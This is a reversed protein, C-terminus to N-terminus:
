AQLSFHTGCYPCQAKGDKDLSLFVRPHSDWIRMTPLPCSLPLDNNSIQYSEETNAPNLDPNSADTTHVM